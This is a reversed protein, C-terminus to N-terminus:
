GGPRAQYGPYLSVTASRLDAPHKPANPGGGAATTVADIGAYQECPENAYASSVSDDPLLEAVQDFRAINDDARDRYKQNPDTGDVSDILDLLNRIFETARM